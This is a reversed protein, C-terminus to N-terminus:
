CYINQGSNAHLMSYSRQPASLKPIQYNSKHANKFKALASNQDPTPVGNFEDRELM